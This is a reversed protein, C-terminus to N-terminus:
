LSLMENIEDIRLVQCMLLNMTSAIKSALTEKSTQVIIDTLAFSECFSLKAVTVQVFDSTNVM